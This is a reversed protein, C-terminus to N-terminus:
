PLETEEAETEDKSDKQYQSLIVALANASLLYGRIDMSENLM